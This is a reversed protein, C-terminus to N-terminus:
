RYTDRQGPDAFKGDKLYQLKSKDLRDETM